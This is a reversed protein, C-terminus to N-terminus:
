VNSQNNSLKVQIVGNICPAFKLPLESESLEFYLLRSLIDEQPQEKKNSKKPRPSQPNKNPDLNRLM